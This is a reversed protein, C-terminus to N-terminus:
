SLCFKKRENIKQMFLPPMNLSSILIKNMRTKQKMNEMIEIKRKLKEFYKKEDYNESKVM